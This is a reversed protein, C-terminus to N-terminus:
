IESKTHLRRISHQQQQQRRRHIEGAVTVLFVELMNAIVDVKLDSHNPMNFIM